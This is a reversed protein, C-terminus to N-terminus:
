PYFRKKYGRIDLHVHPTGLEMGGPWWPDLKKRAEDSSMGQVKFDAAMGKLHYSKMPIKKLDTIGLEERYIRLHDDMSRYGSTITMPRNGLKTRVKELAQALEMLNLMVDHPVKVGPKVFESLSFHETLKQNALPSGQKLKPV